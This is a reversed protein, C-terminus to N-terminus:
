CKEKTRCDAEIVFATESTKASLKMRKGGNAAAYAKARAVDIGSIRAVAKEDALHPTASPAMM